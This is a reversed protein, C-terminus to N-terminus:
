DCDKYLEKCAAALSSSGVSSDPSGNRSFKTASRNSFTFEPQRDMMSQPSPVGTGSQRYTCNFISKRAIAECDSLRGPNKPNSWNPM